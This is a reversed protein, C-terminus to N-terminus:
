RCSLVKERYDKARGFYNHIDDYRAANLLGIFYEIREELQRLYNIIEKRNHVCIDSWMDPSSSSIRTIDKFSGAAIKNLFGDNDYDMAMNLLSASIVHPIHSIISVAADHDSIDIRLPNAGMAKILSEIREVFETPVDGPMILYAAGEFLKADSHEYGGKETGAMPHAPVFYIGQPLEKIVRKIIDGKVSCVDTIVTGPSVISQVMRITEYVVNVPTCIFVVDVDGTTFERSYEDIVGENRARKLSEMNIDVGIIHYTKDVRKLAKAISGGILGLGIVAIKM